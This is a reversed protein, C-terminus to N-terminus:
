IDFIGYGLSTKAGIGHEKLAEKLFKETYKLLNIDKSLLHFQFKAKKLTLFKIPRPKQYDTPAEKGSYYDPYHVNMIDIELEISDVPYADMFIVQGIQRQTGFIKVLDKFEIGDLSLNSYSDDGDELAKSVKEIVDEFSENNAIHDALKLVIWHKTIGKIASGPIYPIGYIHHLTMSTEQPHSAGLGIILRWQCIAHFSIVKFGSDKLKNILEENREKIFNFNNLNNKLNKFENIIFQLYKEKNEKEENKISTEPIFKSFLLNINKEYKNKSEYCWDRKEERHTRRNIEWHEKKLIEDYLIKTTDEPNCFKYDSKPAIKEIM